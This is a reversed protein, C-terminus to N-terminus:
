TSSRFRDEENRNEVGGGTDVDGLLAPAVLHDLTSINFRPDTACPIRPKKRHAQLAVILGSEQTKNATPFSALTPPVPPSSLFCLMKILVIGMEKLRKFNPSPPVEVVKKPHLQEPAHAPGLCHNKKETQQKDNPDLSPAYCETSLNFQVPDNLNFISEM